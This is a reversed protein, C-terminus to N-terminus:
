LGIVVGTEGRRGTRVKCTGGKKGGGRRLSPSVVRPYREVRPCRTEVPSLV